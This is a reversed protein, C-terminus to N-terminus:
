ARGKSKQYVKGTRKDKQGNAGGQILIYVNFNDFFFMGIMGGLKLVM